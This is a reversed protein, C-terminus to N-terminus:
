GKFMPDDDNFRQADVSVDDALQAALTERLERHEKQRALMDNTFM